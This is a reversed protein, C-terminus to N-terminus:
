IIFIVCTKNTHILARGYTQWGLRAVGATVKGAVLGVYERRAPGEHAGELTELESQKSRDASM